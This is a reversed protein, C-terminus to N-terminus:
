KWRATASCRSAPGGVQRTSQAMRLRFLDEKLQQVKGTVEEASMNRADPARLPKAMALVPTAARQARLTPSQQLRSGAAFQSRSCGALSCPAALMAAMQAERQSRWPTPIFLIPSQNGTPM